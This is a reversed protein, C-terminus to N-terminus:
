RWQDPVYNCHYEEGSEDDRPGEPRWGEEQRDQRAEVGAGAEESRGRLLRPDGDAGVEVVKASDCVSEAIGVLRQLRKRECGAELPAPVILLQRIRLWRLEESKFEWLGVPVEGFEQPKGM